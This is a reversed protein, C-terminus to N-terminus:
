RSTELELISDRASRISGRYLHIELHHMMLPSELELDVSWDGNALASTTSGLILTTPILKTHSRALSRYYHVWFRPLVHNEPLDWRIPVIKGTQPAAVLFLGAVDAHLPFWINPWSWRQVRCGPRWKLQSDWGWKCWWWWSPVLEEVVWFRASTSWASNQYQLDRSSRSFISTHASYTSQLNGTSVSHM